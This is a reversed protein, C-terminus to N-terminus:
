FAVPFQCCPLLFWQVCSLGLCSTDIETSWVFCFAGTHGNQDVKAHLKALFVAASTSHLLNLLLCRVCLM